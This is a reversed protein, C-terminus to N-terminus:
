VAIGGSGDVGGRAAGVLEGGHIRPLARLRAFVRAAGPWCVAEPLQNESLQLASGALPAPTWPL